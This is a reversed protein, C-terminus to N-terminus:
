KPPTTIVPWPKLGVLYGELIDWLQDSSQKLQQVNGILANAAELNRQLRRKSAAESGELFSANTLSSATLAANLACADINAFLATIEFPDLSPPESSLKTRIMTAGLGGVLIPGADSKATATLEPLDAYKGLTRQYAKLATEAGSVARELTLRDVAKPNPATQSFGFLQSSLIFAITWCLGWNTERM